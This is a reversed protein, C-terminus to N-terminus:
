LSFMLALLCWALAPRKTSLGAIDDFTELPRGEADILMMLAVFSGLSMAVYIALYVMMASAGAANAAALGILIFLASVVTLVVILDM